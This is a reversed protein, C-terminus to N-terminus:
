GDVSCGVEAQEYEMLWFEQVGLEDLAPTGLKWRMM